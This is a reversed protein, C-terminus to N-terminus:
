VSLAKDLKAEDFGLVPVGNIVTVPTGGFGLKRFEALATEDEAVNRETYSLGKDELYKKVGACYHCGTMTYVVIEPKAL